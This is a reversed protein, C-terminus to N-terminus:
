EDKLKRWLTSRSIGLKDAVDQKNWRYENLFSIIIEREMKELRDKNVRITGNDDLNRKTTGYYNAIINGTLENEKIQNYLIVYRHIINELERINGTWNHNKLINVENQKLHPITKNYNKSYLDIFYNALLGVDDIRERLNPLNIALTNIRHFLDSRFENKQILLDINKNTASLIRTDVFIETESGVRRLMKEQIIRLFKGQLIIPLSNIEDLFITGKHALEFLGMKGAKKAGSFAGDVYGFLESELLQEPIAGCNVAIFPKDKRSSHNHISQAFLEKGTGTEGTILIEANTLSFIKANNIVNVIKPDKGIIDEFTYKASFKNAHLKNRVNAEKDQLESINRFIIVNDAFSVKSSLKEVLYNKDNIKIIERSLEKNNIFLGIREDVIKIDENYYKNVPMNMIDNLKSNSLLVKNKKTALLGENMCNIISFINDLLEKEKQRSEIISVSQEFANQLCAKSTKIFTAPINLSLAVELGLTGGGIISNMGDRKANAVQREIDYRDQFPYARIEKFDFINELININEEIEQQSYTIIGVKDGYERSKKLAYIIDIFSPEIRVISSNEFIKKAYTTVVGRGIIVYPNFHNRSLDNLENILNDDLNEGNIIQPEYTFNVSIEEIMEGFGKYPSIVMLKRNM